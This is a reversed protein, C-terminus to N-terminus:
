WPLGAVEVRGAPWVHEGCPLVMVHYPWVVKGTPQEFEVEEEILRWGQRAYFPTLRQLCFLMGSEVRMEACMFETARRMAVHVYQRGQAEPITVVGGIGGVTLARGGVSVETKLMGVHSVARGDEETIFHWDKPRWRYNVDELGFINEGWGFLTQREDDTLTEAFRIEVSLEKEGM